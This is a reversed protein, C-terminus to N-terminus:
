SVYKNIIPVLWLSALQMIFKKANANLSTM